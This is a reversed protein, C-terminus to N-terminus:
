RASFLQPVLLFLWYLRVSPALGTLGVARHRPDRTATDGYGCFWQGDHGGLALQQTAFSGRGLYDSRGLQSMRPNVILRNAWVQVVLDANSASCRKAGSRTSPPSGPAGPKIVLGTRSPRRRGVTPGHEIQPSTWSPSGSSHGHSRNACPMPGRGSRWFPGGPSGTPRRLRSSRTSTSIGISAGSFAPLLEGRWGALTSSICVEAIDVRHGPRDAEHVLQGSRGFQDILDLDGAYWRLLSRKRIADAFQNFMKPDLSLCDGRQPIPEFPDCRRPSRATRM